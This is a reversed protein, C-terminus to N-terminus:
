HSDWIRRDSPGIFHKLNQSCLFHLWLRTGRSLSVSIVISTIGNCFVIPLTHGIPSIRTHTTLEGDWFCAFITARFLICTGFVFVVTRTTIWFSIGKRLGLCHLTAVSAFLLGGVCVQVGISMHCLFAAWPAEAGFEDCGVPNIAIPESGADRMSGATTNSGATSFATPLERHALERESFLPEYAGLVAPMASSAQVHGGPWAIGIVSWAGTASASLVGHIHGPVSVSLARMAGFTLMFGQLLRDNLSSDALADDPVFTALAIGLPVMLTPACTIELAHLAYVYSTCVILAMAFIVPGAPFASADLWARTFSVIKDNSQATELAGLPSTAPPAVPPSPPASPAFNHLQDFPAGLERAALLTIGFDNTENHIDAAIENAKRKGLTIHGSLPLPRPLSSADSGIGSGVSSMQLPLSGPLTGDDFGPLPPLPDHTKSSPPHLEGGNPPHLEGGSPPHLEGGSPPHLEGGSPTHEGGTFDRELAEILFDLEIKNEMWTTCSAVTSDNSDSTTEPTATRHAAAAAPMRVLATSALAHWDARSGVPAHPVVPPMTTIPSLVSTIRGPTVAPVLTDNAIRFRIDTGEVCSAWQPPIPTDHKLAAAFPPTEKFVVIRPGKSLKMHNFVRYACLVTTSAGCPATCEFWETNWLGSGVSNGRFRGGSSQETVM